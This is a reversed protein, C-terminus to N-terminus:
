DIPVSLIEGNQTHSLGLIFPAARNVWEAAAPYALADNGAVKRLMYTNTAGPLLGVIGIGSPLEAAITRTLGELAWKSSNYAGSGSICRQAGGSLLNIIMGKRHTIMSPIFNRLVNATGKINTDIVSNFKKGPLKWFEVPSTIVGANNVLIDVPGNNLVEKAWQSVAKADVINVQKYFLHPSPSIRNPSCCFIQHGLQFYRLALSRGLGRSVGTIVIVKSKIM